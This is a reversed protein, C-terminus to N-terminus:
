LDQASQERKRKEAIFLERLEDSILLPSENGAATKRTKRAKAWFSRFEDESMTEQAKILIEAKEANTQADMIENTLDNQFGFTRYIQFDKKVNDKQRDTANEGYVKTWLDKEADRLTTPDEKWADVAERMFTEKGIDRIYNTDAGIDGNALADEQTKRAGEYDGRQIQAQITRRIRSSDASARDKAIFEKSLQDWALGERTPTFGTARIFAEWANYKLVEGHEDRLPTGAFSRVGWNYGTFARVPNSFMDPLLKAAADDLRGQRILEAGQQLRGGDAADKPNVWLLAGLAGIYSKVDNPNEIISSVSFIDVGVRGSLDFGSLAPIGKKVAVEWASMELENECAGEEGNGCDTGFIARFITILTGAFPLSTAGGLAMIYVMKRGFAMFEKQTLDRSLQYLFSRMYHMFVFLNGLLGGRMMKPRHQKGYRFHIDESVELAKENAEREDMGQEIFLRRAAIFMPVRNVDREVVATTSYMAKSFAGSLETYLPNNKFGMMEASMEGGLEGLLLLSEVAKREDANLNKSWWDSMAKTIMLEPKVVKEGGKMYKSLEGTGVTFNQTANTLLFSLDNALYFAFAVAKLREWEKTNGMDYAISDRMWGYFKSQRRADITSLVEYYQKAADMKTLYGDLGAFYNAILTPVEKTEYGQIGTRRIYHRGFGKEKVMNRLADIMTKKVDESTKAQVLASKMAEFSLRQETFFDVELNDLTDLVFRTRADKNQAKMANFAEEAARKSKFDEMSVTKFGKGDDNQTKVVYKYKWKHPIYGERQGMFEEIEDPNVGNEAMKALLMQHALDFAKRVANYANVQAGNLNLSRLEDNSFSKGRADGDILVQNVRERENQSLSKLYYPELMKSWKKDLAAKKMRRVQAVKEYEKAAQFENPDRLYLDRAQATIDELVSIDKRTLDMNQDEIEMDGLRQFFTHVETDFAASKEALGFDLVRDGTRTRREAEIDFARESKLSVPEKGEARRLRDYFDTIVDMDAGLARLLDTLLDKLAQYFRGVVSARKEEIGAVYREFGVALKEQLAEYEAQTYSRGGNVAELLSQETIGAFAPISEINQTVLHVFEHHATTNTVNETLTIRNNYTVARAASRADFGRGGKSGTLITHAFDVDFSLNFRKKYAELVQKAEEATSAESQFSDKESRQFAMVPMVKDLPGIETELWSIGNEDEIVQVDPRIKRLYKQVDEEYFKYVPNNKDVTGSLDFQEVHSDFVSKSIDNNKYADYYSEQVAKFKGDGLIETVAYLEGDGEFGRSFEGIDGVKLDAIDVLQGEVRFDVVDDGLGEIKMITEGTPFLLKTKGDLAARRVEERIIRTWWENRYPALSALEKDRAEAIESPTGGIQEIRKGYAASAGILGGEEELRGRQFLDSQIEIVRRIGDESMDEVRVHAFYKKFAGKYHYQSASTNVPSEYIAEYYEAVDGRDEEALTISEYKKVRRNLHKAGPHPDYEVRELPLLKTEYKEVFQQVNLTDGAPMEALAEMAAERDAKKVTARKVADLVFQRSITDRDSLEEILPTSLSRAEMRKGGLVAYSRQFLPGGAFHTKNDEARERVIEGYDMERFGADTTREDAAKKVAEEKEGKLNEIQERIKAVEMDANALEKELDTVDIGKETLRTTVEALKAEREPIAKKSWENGQEAFKRSDELAKRAEIFEIARRNKYAQDAIKRKIEHELENQKFQYDLETRRVPDTILDLKMEEFDIDGVDLTDGKFKLSEEYRKEKNQLKQSLFVDVSNETFYTNVRIRAWRNGQRWGRGIVQRLDTFNWPLSLIHLDGTNQQLNVGEKIADSGIVVKVDGKNFASQIVSRKPKPTAGSIIEVQGPKLKAQKEIAEKLLPFYEVGITSYILHGAEPKDKLTQKIVEVVTKLKPSGEIFQNATPVPGNYSRSLFPSFAIARLEGIAKLAGANKTDKFLEQAAEKYEAAEKTEGVIYERPARVPRKVGAEEGDRFDIFETLLKQFQQYNKFSRVESKEVFQGDAKFEHLTTIEMFATMFDNVNLLGMRRMRERAMLSLISYYELPNNTFPTASAFYTNRGGNKKQIYQSALWMKIGFISPRIGFNRFESVQGEKEMKARPIIHNANHIEDGALLDFGLDEFFRDASTGRKGKGVVVEAQAEELAGQRKSKKGDAPQEIVDFFDKTLDDYTEDAFGLKKFGEETVISWTGEEVELTALDGKFDGGLNALENIKADPILENIEGIWQNYVNVSPVVILPKKSWGRAMTENIALITQMTKGIGVDHALLGVGRNVLFGIGQLQVDKIELPKGHFTDHIKGVLPVSRYDPRSYANFQRNYAEEVTFRAKEDINENLFLKFLRDGEIRRTRREAENQLKDGGRVAQNQVYGKVAWRTSEGFAQLPLKEMWKLFHEALPKEMGEHTVMLESAFRANPSLNMRDIGVREPMAAKLVKLQRQFQALSIKDAEANLADMKEYIDGQAYNFENYYEGKYYFAKEKDFNGALEGTATTYKWLEKEDESATSYKALDLVGGKKKPAPKAEEKKATAKKAKKKGIVNDLATRAEEASEYVKSVQEVEGAMSTPQREETLLPPISGVFGWKGSPFEIISVKGGDWKINVLSNKSLAMNLGEENTWLNQGGAKPKLEYKVDGQLPLVTQITWKKNNFDVEAGVAYKATMKVKERVEKYDAEKYAEDLDDKIGTVEEDDNSSEQEAYEENRGESFKSVADEMTGEVWPEMEGRRGKKTTETGLIKDSNMISRFFRDDSITLGRSQQHILDKADERKFVLIDIGITTTPFAGNPLRYADVLKGKKAIMQKVADIGSRLFSSPVVMAVHGGEKTLDLGRKIFYDEYSQIKTEEGLGLYMGRHKGYPPNGVVLDYEANHVVPKGRGDMFRSEFPSTSVVAQPNLLKLVRAATENIEHAVIRTDGPMVNLFAGIGASPELALMNTKMADNDYLVDSVMKTVEPPTYYEDLLGRGEAGKSEMGGAGTYLAIKELVDKDDFRGGKILVEGNESIDTLSEVIAKIEENSTPVAERREDAEEELIDAREEDTEAQALEDGVSEEVMEPAPKGEMIADKLLIPKVDMVMLVGVLKGDQMFKVPSLTDPILLKAEPILNLVPELLKKDVVVRSGDAGELVTWISNDPMKGVAVLPSGGARFMPTKELSIDRKLPGLGLEELRSLYEAPPEGVIQWTDTGYSDKLVNPSVGFPLLRKWNPKGRKGLNLGGESSREGDGTGRKSRGRRPVSDGSKTDTGGREAPGNGDNSGGEPNGNPRVGSRSDTDNDENNGGTRFPALADLAKKAEAKGVAGGTKASNEIRKVLSEIVAQIAEEKSAYTDTGFPGSSGSNGISISTRVSWRGDDYKVTELELINSAGRGKVVVDQEVNERWYDNMYARALNSKDVHKQREVGETTDFYSEEDALMKLVESPKMSEFAKKAESEILADAAERAQQKTQKSAVEEEAKARWKSIFDNEMRAMKNSLKDGEKILKERAAKNEAGKLKKLENEIESVRASMNGFEDANNDEWDSQMEPSDSLDGLVDEVTKPTESVPDAFAEAAAAEIDADLEADDKGTVQRVVARAEEKDAAFMALADDIASDAMADDEIPVGADEVMRKKLTERDETKLGEGIDGSLANIADGQTKFPGGESLGAVDSRLKDVVEQAPEELDKVPVGTKAHLKELADTIIQTDAGVNPSIEGGKEGLGIGAGGLFGIPATVILTDVLDAAIERTKDYGYKAVINSWVTQSGEQISETIANVSAKHLIGRGYSRFLFDLGVRELITIGATDVSANLLSRSQIQDETWDPHEEALKQKSVNYTESGEMLGLIGAALTPNKTVVTTGIALAMSGAGTGLQYGFNRPNVVSTDAGIGLEQMRRQQEGGLYAVVDNSWDAVKKRENKFPAPTSLLGVPTPIYLKDSNEATASIITYITKPAQTKITDYLGLGLGKFASGAESATDKALQLNEELPRSPISALTKTGETWTKGLQSLASGEKILSSVGKEAFSKIREFTTPKPAEVPTTSALLDAAATVAPRPKANTDKVNRFEDYLSPKPVTIPGAKVTPANNETKKASFEDYLSPM